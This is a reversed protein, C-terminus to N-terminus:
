DTKLTALTQGAKVQSNFTAEVSAVTGSLESSVDVQNIPQITGAASINVTLDGRTVAVTTYTVPAPGSRGFWWWGAAAAVAIVAVAIVIRRFVGRSRGRGLVAAVDARAPPPSAVTSGAGPVPPKDLM